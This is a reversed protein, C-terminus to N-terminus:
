IRRGSAIPAFSVSALTFDSGETNYLSIDYWNARLGRGPDVRQIRLDTSSSRAEYRYDEAEPTTVRLEMPTDSSVGFYCAPLHKLNEGGFDKKGFDVHADVPGTSDLLYLGDPM